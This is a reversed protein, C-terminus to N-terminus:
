KSEDEKSKLLNKLLEDLANMKRQHGKKALVRFSRRKGKNRGKAGM